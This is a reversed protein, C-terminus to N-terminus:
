KGSRVWEFVKIEHDHMEKRINTLEHNIESRMKEVASLVKEQLREVEHHSACSIVKVTLWANWSVMAGTFFVIFM